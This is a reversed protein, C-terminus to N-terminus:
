IHRSLRFGLRSKFDNSLSGYIRIYAFIAAATLDRSHRYIGTFHNNREKRVIHQMVILDTTM